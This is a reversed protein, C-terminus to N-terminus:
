KTKNKLALFHDEKKVQNPDIEIEFWDPLPGKVPLSVRQGKPTYSYEYEIVESHSAGIAQLIQSRYVEIKM